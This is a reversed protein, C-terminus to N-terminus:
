NFGAGVYLGIWIKGNDQYQSNQGLQDVGLLFGATVSSAKGGPKFIMGTAVTLGQKNVNTVTGDPNATPIPVNTIGASLVFISETGYLDTTFGFYPGVTISGSILSHHAVGYKYPVVLVGSSWSRVLVQNRLEDATVVYTKNKEGDLSKCPSIFDPLGHCDTPSNTTFLTYTGNNGSNSDKYHLKLGAKIKASAGQGGIDSLTIIESSNSLSLPDKQLDVHPVVAANEMDIGTVRGNIGNVYTVPGANGAVTVARDIWVDKLTAGQITLATVSGNITSVATCSGSEITGKIIKGEYLTLSDAAMTSPVILKKDKVAVTPKTSANTAVKKIDGTISVGECTDAAQTSITTLLTYCLIPFAIAAYIKM